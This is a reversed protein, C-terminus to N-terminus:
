GELRGAATCICSRNGDADELVWFSKESVDAVLLGGAALVADIRPQVQEAPVWIDLHWRQRPDQAGSEQFWVSPARGTPDSLADPGDGREYALLDRWFPQVRHHDPSDLCLEIQQLGSPDASIGQGAAIESIRGALALDRDTVQDVDHSLLGVDVVSYTLTVDPHHNADDAAAAVADVFRVGAAFDGTRFRAHIGQQLMRWDLLGAAAIDQYSVRDM